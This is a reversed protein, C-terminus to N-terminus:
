KSIKKARWVSSDSKVALIPFKWILPLYSNIRPSPNKECILSEKSYKPIRHNFKMLIGPIEMSNWYIIPIKHFIVQSESKYFIFCEGRPREQFHRLDPRWYILQSPMPSAIPLNHTQDWCINDISSKSSSNTECIRVISLTNKLM